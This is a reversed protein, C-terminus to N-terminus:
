LWIAYSVGGQSSYTSTSGAVNYGVDVIGYLTVSSAASAASSVSVLIAAALLNKKM